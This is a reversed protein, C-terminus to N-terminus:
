HFHLLLFTDRLIHQELLKLTEQVVYEEHYMEGEVNESPSAPYYLVLIKSFHKRPIFRLTHSLVGGSHATGAHPLVYGHLDDIPILPQQIKIHAHHFWM